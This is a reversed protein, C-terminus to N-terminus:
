FSKCRPLCYKKKPTQTYSCIQQIRNFEFPLMLFIYHWFGVDNKKCDILQKSVDQIDIRKLKLEQFCVDIANNNLIVLASYQGQETRPEYWSFLLADHDKCNYYPCYIDMSNVMYLRFNHVILFVYFCVFVFVCLIIKYVEWFSSTPLNM